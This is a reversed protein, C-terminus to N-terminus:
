LMTMMVLYLNQIMEYSTDNHVRQAMKEMINKVVPSYLALEGELRTMTFVGGTDLREM